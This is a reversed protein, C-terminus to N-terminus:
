RTSVAYMEQFSILCYKTQKQSRDGINEGIHIIVNKRSFHFIYKTKNKFVWYGLLGAFVVIAFVIAFVFVALPVASPAAAM